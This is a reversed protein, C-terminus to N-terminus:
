QRRAAHLNADSWHSQGMPWMDFFDPLDIVEGDLAEYYLLDIRDLVTRAGDLIEREYGECDIKLLDIRLVVHQAVLAALTRVEVTQHIRLDISPNRNPRFSGLQSGPTDTAFTLWGYEAGLAGEVTVREDFRERVLRQCEPDADFAFVRAEPRRELVAQTFDGRNAGVDFVTIKGDPLQEILDLECREIYGGVQPEGTIEYTM